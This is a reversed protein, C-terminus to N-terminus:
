GLARASKAVTVGYAGHAAIMAVMRGKDDDAPSPYLGLTPLLVGYNIIWITGGWLLGATVDSAPLWPRVLAYATGWGTGFSLHAALWQLTFGSDTRPTEDAGSKRAVNATVQAPSPPKWQGIAGIGIVPTMAATGLLGAVAGRLLKQPLTEKAGTVQDIISGIQKM